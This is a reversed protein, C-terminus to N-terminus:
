QNFLPIRTAVRGSEGSIEVIYIGHAMQPLSVVHNGESFVMKNQHLIRGQMDYLAINANGFNSETNVVLQGAANQFILFGSETADQTSVLCGALVEELTECTPGNASIVSEAAQAVLNCVHADDCGNLVTNGSLNLNGSFSLDPNLILQTM